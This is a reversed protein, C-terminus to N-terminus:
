SPPIQATGFFNVGVLSQRCTSSALQAFGQICALTRLKGTLSAGPAKPARKGPRDELVIPATPTWAIEYGIWGAIVAVITVAVIPLVAKRPKEWQSKRIPTM